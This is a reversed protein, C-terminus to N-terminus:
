PLRVSCTCGDFPSGGLGTCGELTCALDNVTPPPQGSCLDFTITALLSTPPNWGATRTAIIRLAYNLDNRIFPNPPPAPAVVRANVSSATGSGPISMRTSRYGILASLSSVSASPPRTFDIAFAQTTTIPTCPGVVCDAPCSTCTEGPELLGNGCIFGVTPTATPTPTPTPTTTVTPTPVGGL